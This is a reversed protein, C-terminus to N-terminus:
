LTFSTWLNWHVFHILLFLFDESGNLLVRDNSHVIESVAFQGVLAMLLALCHLCKKADAEMRAPGISSLM